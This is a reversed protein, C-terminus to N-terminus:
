SCREDFGHSAGAEAALRAASSPAKKLRRLCLSKRAPNPIPTIIDNPVISVPQPLPEDTGVTFAPVYLTVTM